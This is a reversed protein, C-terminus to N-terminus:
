RPYCFIINLDCLIINMLLTLLTKIIGRVPLHKQHQITYLNYLTTNMQLFTKLNKILVYKNHYTNKILKKYVKIAKFICIKLIIYIINTLTTKRM